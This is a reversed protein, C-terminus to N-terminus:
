ISRDFSHMHQITLAAPVEFIDTLLTPVFEFILARVLQITIYKIYNPRLVIPYHPCFVNLVLRQPRSKSSLRSQPCAVNLVSSKSSLRSQPCAVKLVFIKVHSM